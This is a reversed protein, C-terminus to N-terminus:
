TGNYWGQHNGEDLLPEQRRKKYERGGACYGCSGHSRCSADVARSDHYEKREKGHKIAKEFSM